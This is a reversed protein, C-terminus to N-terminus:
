VPTPLLKSGIRLQCRLCKKHIMNLIIEEVARELLSSPETLLLALRAFLAGRTEGERLREILRVTEPVLQGHEDDIMVKRLQEWDEESMRGQDRAIEAASSTINIIRSLKTDDLGAALILEVGCAWGIPVSKVADHAEAAVESRFPEGLLPLLVALSDAADRLEWLNGSAKLARLAQAVEVKVLAAGRIEELSAVLMALARARKRPDESQMAKSLALNTVTAKTPEDELLDALACLARVLFLDDQFFWEFPDQDLPRSLSCDDSFTEGCSSCTPTDVRSLAVRTALNLIVERQARDSQHATNLLSPLTARLVCLSSPRTNRLEAKCINVIESMHSARERHPVFPLFWALIQLRQLPHAGFHADVELFVDELVTQILPPRLIPALHMLLWIRQKEDEVRGITTITQEKLSDSVELGQIICRSGAPAQGWLESLSVLAGFDETGNFYILAEKVTWNQTKLLAVLLDNPFIPQLEKRARFRALRAFRALDMAETYQGRESLKDRQERFMRYMKDDHQAFEAEGSRVENLFWSYSSQDILARLNMAGIAHRLHTALWRLGYETAPVKEVPGQIGPLGNELGGWADLYHSAIQRHAHATAARIESAFARDIESIEATGVPDHFFASSSSDHVFSMQEAEIDIHVVPRMYPYVRTLSEILDKRELGVFTCIESLPRDEQIAALTAMLPKGFTKWGEEDAVKWRKWMELYYEGLVTPLSDLEFLSRRGHELEEVLHRGLLWLGNVKRNLAEVFHDDSMNADRLRRSLQPRRTANQFYTTLDEDNKAPGLRIVRRPQCAILPDEGAKHATIIFVNKPLREPLPTVSSDPFPKHTILKTPEDIVLVIPDNAYIDAASFLLKEFAARDSKATRVAQDLAGELGERVNLAAGIQKILQTPDSPNNLEQPFYCPWPRVRRTALAYLFTTKGLGAEAEIIIYGGEKRALVEEVEETLRARKVYHEAEVKQGVSRFDNPEFDHLPSFGGIRRGPALATLLEHTRRHGRADMGQVLLDHLRRATPTKAGELAICFYDTFDASLQVTGLGMAEAQSVGEDNAPLSRLAGFAAETAREFRDMFPASLDDHLQTAGSERRWLVAALGDVLPGISTAKSSLQKSVAEELASKACLKLEESGAQDSVLWKAGDTTWNTVVAVLWASFLEWAM